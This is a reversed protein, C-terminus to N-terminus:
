RAAIISISPDSPSPPPCIRREASDSAMQV